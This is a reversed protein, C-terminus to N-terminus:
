LRMIQLETTRELYHIRLYLVELVSFHRLASNGYVFVFFGLLFFFGRYVFYIRELDDNRKGDLFDRRHGFESHRFTSGLVALDLM